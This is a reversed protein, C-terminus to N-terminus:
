ANYTNIFPNTKYRSSKNHDERKLECIEKRGYSKCNLVKASDNNKMIKHINSSRKKGCWNTYVKNGKCSSNSFGRCKRFTPSLNTMKSNNLDDLVFQKSRIPFGKKPTKFRFRKDHFNEKTEELIM